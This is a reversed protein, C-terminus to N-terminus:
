DTKKKKFADTQYPVGHESHLKEKCEYETQCNSMIKNADERYKEIQERGQSDVHQSLKRLRFGSPLVPNVSNIARMLEKSKPFRNYIAHLIFERICKPKVYIKPDIHGLGHMRLANAFFPNKNPFLAKYPLPKPTFREHIQIINTERGDLLTITAEMAKRRRKDSEAKADANASFMKDLLQREVLSKESIETLKKKPEVPTIKRVSASKQKEDEKPKVASKNKM